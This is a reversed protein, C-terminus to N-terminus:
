RKMPTNYRISRRIRREDNWFATLDASLRKLDVTGFAAKQATEPNRTKSFTLYYRSMIGAYEKQGNAPAGKLLYYVLANALLYNRDRTERNYFQERNMRILEDLDYKKKFAFLRALRRKLPDTLGVLGTAGRFEIGEFFEACGENFWLPFHLEGSAYHLYQHFGEHFAIKAIAERQREESADWSLPSIVLERRAPQWVGGTWEMEGGVYRTYEDRDNFIRVVSVENIRVQPPFWSMFCNRAREIERRLREMGRRDTQNSVFIYNPSELYWWGSLNRINRIVRERSAQMTESGAATNRNLRRVTASADPRFFEVSDALQGAAKRFQGADRAAASTVLLLFKRNEERSPWILFAATNQADKGSFVVERVTRGLPSSDLEKLSVAEMGTFRGAWGLLAAEDWKGPPQATNFLRTAEDESVAKEDPPPQTIAALLVTGANGSWVGATERHRWLEVASFLKAQDARRTWRVAPLPLPAPTFERFIRLKIGVGPLTETPGPRLQAPAAFLASSLLAAALLLHKKM